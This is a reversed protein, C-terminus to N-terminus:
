RTKYFNLWIIGGIVLYIITNLDIFSNSIKFMVWSFFVVNVIYIVFTTKKMLWFGIWCGIFIFSTLLLSILWIDIGNIDEYLFIGDVLQFVNLIFGLLCLVSIGIPRIVKSSKEINQDIIRNDNM